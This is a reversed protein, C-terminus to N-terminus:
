GVEELQRQEWEQIVQIWREPVPIPTAKDAGLAVLISTSRGLISGDDRWVSQEMTFSTRGLKTIRTGCTLHDGFQGQSRFDTELRALVYTLEDYAALGTRVMYDIRGTELLRLLALNNMHGMADLDGFM